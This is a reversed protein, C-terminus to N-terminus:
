SPLSCNVVRRAEALSLLMPMLNYLLPCVSTLNYVSLSTQTPSLFFETYVHKPIAPIYKQQCHAQKHWHTNNHLLMQVCYM